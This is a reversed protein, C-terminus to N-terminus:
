LFLIAKKILNPDDNFMGLGLNCDRCLLGRVKGTKHDHDVCLPRKRKCIACKEKQKIVMKAYGGEDLGYKREKIAMHNKRYWRKANTLVAVKNAKKWSRSKAYSKKKNRKYWAANRAKHTKM